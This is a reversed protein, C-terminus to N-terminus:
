HQAPVLIKFRITINVAVVNEKYTTQKVALSLANKSIAQALAM